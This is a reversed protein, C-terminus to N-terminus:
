WALFPNTLNDSQSKKVTGLHCKIQTRFEYESILNCQTIKSKWVMMEEPTKTEGKSTVHEKTREEEPLTAILYLSTEGLHSLTTTNPLENVVKM